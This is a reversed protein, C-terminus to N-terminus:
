TQAHQVLSAKSQDMLSGFRDFLYTADHPGPAAEPHYQVSFARLADHSLGEVCRDNLNLHTIRAEPPLSDASIPEPSADDVLVIRYNAHTTQAITELTKQLQRWRDYYTMVIAIKKM